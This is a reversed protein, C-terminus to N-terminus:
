VHSGFRKPKRYCHYVTGGIVVEDYKTWGAQGLKLVDEITIVATTEFDENRFQINRSIYKMTNKIQRHGLMKQVILVNGNTEYAIKTGAWTRFATFDIALLRPNKQLEATRKRVAIYKRLIAPYTTPFVREDKRPLADIMAILRGSVEITRPLHNKCPYRISITQNRNDIDLWRIRLVETPDGFVEKLTQLFIALQKNKAAAILIDLETEYPLFPEFDEQSYTPMEWSLKLMKLFADYAYANLMKTGNKAPEGKKNKLQAIIMKVNEPDRLNAGLVALHKVKDVYDSEISYAEKELYAMFQTLLGQTEASVHKRTADGVRFLKQKQAPDLNKTARKVGIQIVSSKDGLNNLSYPATFRYGCDRCIHRQTESGDSLKRKGDKFSKDSGCEPCRLPQITETEHLRRKPQRWSKRANQATISQKGFWIISSVIHSPLPGPQFIPLVDMASM